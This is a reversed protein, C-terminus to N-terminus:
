LWQRVGSGAERNIFRLGPRALDDLGRLGLPNGPPVILGEERRFAQALAVPQGPFIHRIFPRNYEQSQADILHCTSLQCLGQRLAILGDLSSLPIPQLALPLGQEAVYGALRQVASDMSGIAVVPRGPAAQPLVVHQILLAARAARYYKEPGGQVPRAGAFEVLGAAELAKLHHRIHAPSEEFAEGLQTLTAPAAMLRRLIALRQPHSLVKFLSIDHPDTM